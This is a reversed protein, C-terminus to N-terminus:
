IIVAQANSIKLDDESYIGIGRQKKDDRTSSSYITVHPLSLIEDLGFLEAVKKHFVDLEPLNVLQIITERIEPITKEPDVPDTDNYERQLYYFTNGYVPQWDFGRMLENLKKRLIFGDEESVTELCRKIQKSAEGGILTVHFEEKPILNHQQAFAEVLKLGVDTAEVNLLVEAREEKFTLNENVYHGENSKEFSKMNM